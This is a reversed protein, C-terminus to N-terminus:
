ADLGGEAAAGPVGGPGGHGPARVPRSGGDVVGYGEPRGGLNRTCLFRLAVRIQPNARSGARVHFAVDVEVCARTCVPAQICVACLEALTRGTPNAM